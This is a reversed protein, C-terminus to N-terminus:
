SACLKFPVFEAPAAVRERSEPKRSLRMAFTRELAEPDRALVEPVRDLRDYDLADFICIAGSL